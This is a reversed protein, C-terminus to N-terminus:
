KNRLEWEGEAILEGYWYWDSQIRSNSGDPEQIRSQWKGHRKGSESFGGEATSIDGSDYMILRHLLEYDRSYTDIYTVDIFMGNDGTTYWTEDYRATKHYAVLALISLMLSALVLFNNSYSKMHQILVMAFFSAICIAGYGALWVFSPPSSRLPMAVAFCLLLVYLAADVLPNKKVPLPIKIPRKCQHCRFKISEM